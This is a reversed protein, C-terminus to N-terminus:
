KFSLYVSVNAKDQTMFLSLLWENKHRFLMFIYERMIKNNQMFILMCIKMGEESNSAIM